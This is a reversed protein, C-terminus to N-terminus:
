DGDKAPVATSLLSAAVDLARIRERLAKEQESLFSMRVLVDGLQAVLAAHEKRLAEM